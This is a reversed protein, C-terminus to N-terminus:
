GTVLVKRRKASRIPILGIKGGQCNSWFERVHDEEGVKGDTVGGSLCVSRGWPTHIQFKLNLHHLRTIM